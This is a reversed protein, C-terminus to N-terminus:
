LPGSKSKRSLSNGNKYETNLISEITNGQRIGNRLLKVGNSRLRAHATVGASPTHSFDCKGVCAQQLCGSASLDSSLPCSRLQRAGENCQRRSSSRGWEGCGCLRAYGCVGVSGLAVHVRRAVNAHSPTGAGTVLGCTRADVARSHCDVRSRSRWTSTRVDQRLVVVEAQATGAPPQPRGGDSM